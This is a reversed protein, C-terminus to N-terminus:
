SVPRFTFSSECSQLGERVRWAWQRIDITRDLIISAGHPTAIALM